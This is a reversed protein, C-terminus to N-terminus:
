TEEVAPINELGLTQVHEDNGHPGPSAAVLGGKDANPPRWAPAQM